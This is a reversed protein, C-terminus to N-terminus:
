VSDTVTVTVSVTMGMGLALALALSHGHCQSAGDVSFDTRKPNKDNIECPKWTSHGCFISIERNISFVIPLNKLPIKLSSFCGTVAAIM